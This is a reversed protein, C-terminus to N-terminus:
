GAARRRTPVGTARRQARDACRRCRLGYRVPREGCDRCILRFPPPPRGGWVGFLQRRGYGQCPDAVPCTACVKRAAAVDGPMSSFFLDVGMGFCAASLQWSPRADTVRDALTPGADFGAMWAAYTELCGDDDELEWALAM